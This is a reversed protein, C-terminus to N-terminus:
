KQQPREVNQLTEERIHEFFEKTNPISPHQFTHSRSRAGLFSMFSTLSLPDNSDEEEEIRQEIENLSTSLQGVLLLLKDVLSFLLPLQQCDNVLLQIQQRISHTESRITETIAGVEDLRNLLTEVTDDADKIYLEVMKPYDLYAGYEDATAETINGSLKPIEEDLREDLNDYSNTSFLSLLSAFSSKEQQFQSQSLSLPTPSPTSTLQSM